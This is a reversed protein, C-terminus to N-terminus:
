SPSHRPQTPNTGAAGVAQMGKRPLRSAELVASPQETQNNARERAAAPGEALEKKVEKIAGRAAKHMAGVNAIVNYVPDTSREAAREKAEKAAASRINGMLAAARVSMASQSQMRSVARSTSQVTTAGDNSDRNGAQPTSGPRASNAQAAAAARTELNAALAKSLKSRTEAVEESLVQSTPPWRYCM